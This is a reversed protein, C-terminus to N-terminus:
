GEIVGWGGRGGGGPVRGVQSSTAVNDFDIYTDVPSTLPGGVYIDTWFSDIGQNAHTRFLFDSKLFADKGDIWGQLRGNAVGPTNMRVHGEVCYWRGPKLDALGERWPFSDGFAAVQNLHYM